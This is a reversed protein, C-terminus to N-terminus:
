MWLRVSLWYYVLADATTAPSLPAFFMTHLRSAMYLCFRLIIVDFNRSRHHRREYQQNESDFRDFLRSLKCFLDESSLLRDTNCMLRHFEDLTDDRPEDVAKLCNTIRVIEVGLESKLQSPRPQLSPGPQAPLAPAAGAGAGTGASTGAGGGTMADRIKSLTEGTVLGGFQRLPVCTAVRDVCSCTDVTCCPSRGDEWVDCPPQQWGSMRLFVRTDSLSALHFESSCGMCRM